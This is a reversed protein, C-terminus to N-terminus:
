SEPDHQGRECQPEPYFKDLMVTSVLPIYGYSRQLRYIEAVGCHDGPPWYDLSFVQLQPNRRKAASIIRYVAKQNAPPHKLFKKTVSSQQAVTSEVLLYNVYPAVDPLASKGAESDFGRNLMIPMQPFAERISRILAVTAAYLHKYQRGEHWSLYLPSDATDLMLGDFGQALLGPIHEKILFDRWQPRSVDLVFSGPWHPNERIRLGPTDYVPYGRVEDSEGISVYGLLTKGQAKLPPLPPHHRDDFVLLDYPAFAEPPLQDSYYLAWSEFTPTRESEPATCSALLLAASLSSLFKQLGKRTFSPSTYLHM